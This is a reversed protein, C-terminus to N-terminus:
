VFILVFGFGFLLFGLIKEIYKKLRNFFPIVRPHSLLLALSSFWLGVILIMELSLIIMGSLSLDPSVVTTFLALFFLAAKPNLANCLFGQWFATGPSQQAIENTNCVDITQNSKSILCTIGLYILYAGGAYKIINFLVPSELIIFALGLACYTIHILIACTIGLSTFLGSRRSYVLTNKVVIAFDPGPLMVSFLMLLGITILETLM